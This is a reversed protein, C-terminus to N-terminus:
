RLRNVVTRPREGDGEAREAPRHAEQPPSPTSEGVLFGAREAPGPRDALVAGVPERM